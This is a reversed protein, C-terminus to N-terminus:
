VLSQPREQVWRGGDGAAQRNGWLSHERYARAPPDIWRTESL